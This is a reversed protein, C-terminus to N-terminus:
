DDGFRYPFRRLGRWLRLLSGAPPLRALQGRSLRHKASTVYLDFVPLGDGADISAFTRRTGLRGTGHTMVDLRM